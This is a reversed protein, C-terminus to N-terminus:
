NQEIENSVGNLISIQRELRAFTERYGLRCGVGMVCQCASATSATNLSLHDDIVATGEYDRYIYAM